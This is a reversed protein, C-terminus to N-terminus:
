LADLPHRGGRRHGDPAERRVHGPRVLTDEPLVSRCSEFRWRLDETGTTARRPRGSPGGPSASSGIAAGSRPRRTCSRRTPAARFSRGPAGARPAGRRRGQRLGSPLLADPRAGGDAPERCLGARRGRALLPRRVGGPRAARRGRRGEGSAPLRHRGDRRAGRQRPGRALRRHHRLHRDVADHARRPDSRSRGRAGPVGLEGDRHGYRLDIADTSASPRKEAGGWPM